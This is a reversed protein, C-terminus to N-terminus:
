LTYLVVQAIATTSTHTLSILCDPPQTSQPMLMNWNVQLQPATSSTVIELARCTALLSFYTEPYACCVAKFFAERAAFRVAFRQASLTPITLCYNIEAPRFIRELQACSFTHWAAFREIEVADLGIAKIM